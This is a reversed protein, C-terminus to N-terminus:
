LACFSTTRPGAKCSSVRQVVIFSFAVDLFSSFSASLVTTLSWDRQSKRPASVSPAFTPSSPSSSRVTPKPLMHRGQRMPALPLIGSFSPRLSTVSCEGLRSLQHTGSAVFLSPSPSCCYLTVPFEHGCRTRLPFFSLSPDRIRCECKGPPSWLTLLIIMLNM